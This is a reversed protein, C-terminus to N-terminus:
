GYIKRYKKIFNNSILKQGEANPHFDNDSVILKNQENNHHSRINDLDYGGLSNLFPWGIINKKNKEVFNFYNSNMFTKTIDTESIRHSEPFYKADVMRNMPQPEFYSPGQAMILGYGYIHCMHIISYMKSLPRQVWYDLMEKKDFYKSSMFRQSLDAIGYRKSWDILNKSPNDMLKIHYEAFPILVQNFFSVRDASTWLIAVTDIDNGHEAIGELISDFIFDNDKGSKAKNVCKLNLENAMIEPWMSWGGRLNDDISSDLSKFNKDTYSCGSALLINGM